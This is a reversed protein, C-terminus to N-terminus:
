LKEAVRLLASRARPNKEVEEPSPRIPKKQVALLKPQMERSMVPLRRALLVERSFTRIFRKVLRDELSHFSIVAFRGGVALVGIVKDLIGKLEDIEQNIHIRIAQFTRTAPHRKRKKFPNVRVVVNALQSTTEIPSKQRESVIARAIRRAHREEGYKKLIRVIESEPVGHLWKAASIGESPDMRMDLPGDVMFGFGREPDTLQPSSVGLDLLLGDVRGFVKWKTKALSALATYSAKDMVFRPDSRALETGVRVAEPDKDLAFVRGTSGVCELLAKAHGGRGFTCDVYIGGPKVALATLVETLLVPKHVDCNRVILVM